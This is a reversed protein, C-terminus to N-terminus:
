DPERIMTWFKPGPPSGRVGPVQWEESITFGLRAYIAVNSQTATELLVGQGQEAARAIGARIVAGGWGKGQADPSVGVYRLYSYTQPQPHRVYMAEAVRMGRGLAGGFMALLRVNDWLSAALGDRVHGPPYWLSAAGLDRSALVHGHRHSQETMLAFFRPLMARRKEPDPIIWSLAPDDQFALALVQAIMRSNGDPEVPVVPRKREM